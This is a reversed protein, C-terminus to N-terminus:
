GLDDGEDRKAGLLSRGRDIAFDRSDLVHVVLCLLPIDFGRRRRGVGTLTESRRLLRERRRLQGERGLRRRLFRGWKGTSPLSRLGGAGMGRKQCLLRRNTEMM